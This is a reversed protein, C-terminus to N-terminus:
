TKMVNKVVDVISEPAALRLSGQAHRHADDIKGLQKALYACSTRVTALSSEFQPVNGVAHLIETGMIEVRSRFEYAQHLWYQVVVTDSIQARLEFERACTNLANLIRICGNFGGPGELSMEIITKAHEFVDKVDNHGLLQMASLERDILPVLGKACNWTKTYIANLTM